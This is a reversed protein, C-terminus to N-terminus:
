SPLYNGGVFPCTSREGAKEAPRLEEEPISVPRVLSTRVESAKGDNRKSKGEENIKENKRVRGEKIVLKIYCRGYWDKM